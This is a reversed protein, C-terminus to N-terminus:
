QLSPIPRLFLRRRRRRRFRFAPGRPGAEAERAPRPGITPGPGPLALGRDRVQRVRRYDVPWRATPSARGPVPEDRLRRHPHRLRPGRSRSSPRVDINPTLSAEVVHADPSTDPSRCTPLVRPLALGAVPLKPVVWPGDVTQPSPTEPHPPRPLLPDSPDKPNTWPAPTHLAPNGTETNTRHHRTTVRERQSLAHGTYSVWLGDLLSIDLGRLHLM